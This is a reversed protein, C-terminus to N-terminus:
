KVQSKLFSDGTTLFSDIGIIHLDDFTLIEALFVGISFVACCIGCILYFIQEIKTYWAWGIIM